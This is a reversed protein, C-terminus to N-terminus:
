SFLNERNIISALMCCVFDKNLILFRLPQKGSRRSPRRKRSTVDIGVSPVRGGASTQQCPRGRYKGTDYKCSTNPNM